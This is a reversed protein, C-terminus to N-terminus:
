RCSFLVKFLYFHHPFMKVKLIAANDPIKKKSELITVAANVSSIPACLCILIFKLGAIM